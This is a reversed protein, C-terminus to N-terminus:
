CVMQIPHITFPKMARVGEHGRLVVHVVPDSDLEIEEDISVGKSSGDHGSDNHRSEVGGCPRQDVTSTDISPPSPAPHSPSHTNKPFPPGITTILDVVDSDEQLINFVQWDIRIDTHIHCYIYYKTFM